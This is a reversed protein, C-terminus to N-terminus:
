LKLSRITSVPCRNLRLLKIPTRRSKCQIQSKVVAAAAPHQIIQCLFTQLPVNAGILSLLIAPNLSHTLLLNGKSCLLTRLNCQDLDRPHSNLVQLLFHLGLLQTKARLIATNLVTPMVDRHYKSHQLIPVSSLCKVGCLLMLGLLRHRRLSM